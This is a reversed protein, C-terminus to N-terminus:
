PEDLSDLPVYLVGGREEFFIPELFAGRCPGSFCYGDEIRFLAGHTSCIINEGARDLFEDPTWDLPTGVHPCDNRYVYFRDRRRIAFIRHEAGHAKVRFGKGRGNEIEDTRCLAAENRGSPDAPMKTADEETM